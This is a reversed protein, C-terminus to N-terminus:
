GTAGVISVVNGMEFRVESVEEKQGFKGHGGLLTVSQVDALSHAPKIVQSSSPVVDTM